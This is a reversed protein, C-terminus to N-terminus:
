KNGKSISTILPLEADMKDITLICYVATDMLEERRQSTTKRRLARHAKIVIQHLWFSTPLDNIVSSEYEGGKKDMLNSIEELANM